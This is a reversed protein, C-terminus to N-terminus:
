TLDFLLTESYLYDINDSFGPAARVVKPTFGSQIRFPSPPTPVLRLEVISLPLGRRWWHAALRGAGRQYLAPNDAHLVRAAPIGKVQVQKYIVHCREAGQALVLHRLWPLNRHDEYSQRAQGSLSAAIADPQDHLAIGATWRPLNLSVARRDDLETFKLFKLTGAVVKTPSFDTYSREGQGIVAMALRTSHQRYAPLVCWSTINCLRETGGDRQRDAFLAGIVGVLKGGDLLCFGFNPAEPRRSRRFDAAWVAASRASNLHQHLFEAVADLRDDTIPEISPRSM